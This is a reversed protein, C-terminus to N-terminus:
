SANSRYTILVRALLWIRVLAKQNITSFNARCAGLMLSITRSASDSSLEEVDKDGDIADDDESSKLDNSSFWSLAV